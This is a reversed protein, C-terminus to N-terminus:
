EEFAYKFIMRKETKVMYDNKEVTFIVDSCNDTITFGVFDVEELWFGMIVVLM